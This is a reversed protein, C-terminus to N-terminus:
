FTKIKDTIKVNLVVKQSKQTFKDATATKQVRQFM